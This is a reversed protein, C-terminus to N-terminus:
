LGPIKYMLFMWCADRVQMVVGDRGKSPVGEPGAAVCCVGFEAGFEAFDDVAAFGDVDGGVGVEVAVVGIRAGFVDLADVGNDAHM